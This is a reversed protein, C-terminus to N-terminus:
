IGILHTPVLTMKFANIGMKTMIEASLINVLSGDDVLISHVRHGKMITPIVLADEHSHKVGQGDTPTFTFPEYWSSEQGMTVLVQDELRIRKNSKGNVSTLLGGL